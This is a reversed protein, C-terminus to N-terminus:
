SKQARTKFEESAGLYLHKYRQPSSSLHQMLLHRNPLIYRTSDTFVPINRLIRLACALSVHYRKKVKKKKEERGREKYLKDEEGEENRTWDM